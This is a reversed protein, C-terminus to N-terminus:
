NRVFLWKVGKYLGIAVYGLIGPKPKQQLNVHITSYDSLHGLKKMKGTLVDIETNIRELEKEVKLAAEINEAKELLQLYRARAKRANDLRIEADQFQETVDEGSVKKNHVEGLKEIENLATHLDSAKVRISSRQTGLNLVYGGHMKSIQTLSVNLSDIHRTQMDLSAVYVVMRENNDTLNQSEQFKDSSPPTTNYQHRTNCAVLGLLSAFLLSSLIKM